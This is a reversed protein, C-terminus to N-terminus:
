SLILEERVKLSIHEIRKQIDSLCAKTGDNNAWVCTQALEDVLTRDSHVVRSNKLTQARCKMDMLADERRGQM